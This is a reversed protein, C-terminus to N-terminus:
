TVISFSSIIENIQFIFGLLAVRGSPIEPWITIKHSSDTM